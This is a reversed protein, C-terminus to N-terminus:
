VEAFESFMLTEEMEFQKGDEDGKLGEEENLEVAKCMKKYVTEWKKCVGSEEEGNIICRMTQMYQKGQSTWGMIIDSDKKSKMLPSFVGTEDIATCWLCKQM